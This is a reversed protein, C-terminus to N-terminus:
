NINCENTTTLNFIGSNSITTMPSSVSCSSDFKVVINSLELFSATYNLINNVPICPITYVEGAKTDSNPCKFREITIVMKIFSQKETLFSIICNSIIEGNMKLRSMHAFKTSIIQNSM